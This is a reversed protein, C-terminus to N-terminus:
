AHTIVGDYGIFAGTSSSQNRVRPRTANKAHLQLNSLLGAGSETTVIASNTGDFLELTITNDHYLNHIVWEETGSPQLDLYQGTSLASSLLVKADGVAM